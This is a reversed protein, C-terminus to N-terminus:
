SPNPFHEMKLALNPPSFSLPLQAKTITAKRQADGRCGKNRGSSVESPRPRAGEGSGGATVGTAATVEVNRRIRIM